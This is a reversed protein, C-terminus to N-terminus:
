NTKQSNRRNPSIRELTVVEAQALFLRIYNKRAELRIQRIHYVLTALSGVLIGVFVGVFNFSDHM